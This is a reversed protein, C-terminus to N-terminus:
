KIFTKNIDRLSNSKILKLLIQYIRSIYIPSNYLRFFLISIIQKKTYGKSISHKIKFLYNAKSRSYKNSTLRNPSLSYASSITNVFYTSSKERIMRYFFDTDANLSLSEDFYSFEKLKKFKILVSQQTFQPIFSRCLNCFISTNPFCSGRYNIDYKTEVFLNSSYFIDYRSSLSKSLMKSMGPLWYDDDNIYTFYNYNEKCEKVAWNIAQFVGAIEDPECLIEYKPYKESLKIYSKSPCIIKHTVLGHSFEQVSKITRELTDKEGLTPTLVLLHKKDEQMTM